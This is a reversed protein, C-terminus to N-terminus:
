RHSSYHFVEFCRRRVFPFASLIMLSMFVILLSGATNVQDAFLFNGFNPETGHLSSIPPSMDPPMSLKPHVFCVYTHFFGNVYAVRAFWKHYWIAREFPIGFLLTLPSNRMATIFALILPTRAAHGSISVSPFAFSYVIGLIIMALLPLMSILDAITLFINAKRLVNNSFPLKRQLLQLMDWRTRYFSNIYETLIPFRRLLFYLPPCELSPHPQNPDTADKEWTILTARPRSQIAAGKKTETLHVKSPYEHDTLISICSRVSMKEDLFHFPPSENAENDIGGKLGRGANNEKTFTNVDKEMTLNPISSLKSMTGDKIQRHLHIILGKQSDFSIANSIKDPNFDMSKSGGQTDYRSQLHQHPQNCNISFLMSQSRQKPYQNHKSLIVSSEEIDNTDVPLMNTSIKNSIEYTGLSDSKTEYSTQKDEISMM